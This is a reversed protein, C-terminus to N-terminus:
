ACNALCGFLSHDRIKCTILSQAIRLAARRRNHIHRNQLHDFRDLIHRNQLHDCVSAGRGHLIITGKELLCISRVKNYLVFHSRPNVGRRPITPLNDVSLEVLSSIWYRCFHSQIKASQQIKSLLQDFATSQCRQNISRVGPLGITLVVTQIASQNPISHNPLRALAMQQAYRHATSGFDRNVPQCLARLFLVDDSSLITQDDLAPTHM